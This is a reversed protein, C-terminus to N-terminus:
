LNFLTRMDNIFQVRRQEATLGVGGFTSTMLQRKKEQLDMMREEVSDKAVMKVITVPRTQGLRHCRDFCQEESAPNWAPDLLFVRSAATLNIGEGGARLSLLLVSPAGATTQSLQAIARRREPLSMTGDLRCFVLGAARLPAELRDLLKTFQSVVLAKTSADEARMARLGEMLSNIKASMVDDAPMDEEEGKKEAQDAKQEEEPVEVLQGARLPGRCLPCQPDPAAAPRPGAAADLLRGVCPRCFVHSCVTIVPQRLPEFCVPCEEDSGSRLMETLAAVLRQREEPGIEEASPGAGGEEDEEPLPQDHAPVLLPHCCLQRLRLLMVLIQVQRRVITGDRIFRAVGRRCQEEMTDYRRRQEGELTVHQVYVNRAPLSVIPRGDVKQEKLRRLAISAMLTQLREVADPSGRMVPQELMMRWLPRQSAYPELRLFRVLSWLDKLRNQVPTGTLVWRREARLEFAARAMLSRPNRITHGEDLVVRLYHKCLLPSDDGHDLARGLTAYTTLVIDADELDAATRKPGHYSRVRLHVHKHVHQELQTEWNDLVSLPCVILTTRPGRWGSRGESDCYSPPVPIFDGSGLSTTSTTGSGSTAKMLVANAGGSQGRPDDDDPLFDEDSDVTVFTTSPGAASTSAKSPKETAEAKVRKLDVKEEEEDSSDIYRVPKRKIRSKRDTVAEESQSFMDSGPEAKVNSSEECAQRLRQRFSSWDIKPSPRGGLSVAKPKPPPPLALAAPAARRKWPVPVALPRGAKFHTLILSIVQLTKGLGMDDALIGGCVADPGEAVAGSSERKMMWGLAQKQHPYLRSAVAACPEVEKLSRQVAAWRESVAQQPDRPTVLTRDPDPARGPKVPCFLDDPVPPSPPSPASPEELEFGMSRLQDCVHRRDAERGRVTVELAATSNDHDVCAADLRVLGAELLPALAGAAPRSLHACTLGRETVLRIDRRSGSTAPAGSLLLRVPRGGVTLLGPYYQLGVAACFLVGFTVDGGGGATSPLDAGDARGRSPGAVPSAPRCSAQRSQGSPPSAKLGAKAVMENKVAVKKEFESKVGTKQDTETKVGDKAATQAAGQVYGAQLGSPGPVPEERSPTGPLSRRLGETGATIGAVLSKVKDLLAPDPGPARAAAAAAGRGGRAGRGRGRGRGRGSASPTQSRAGRGRRGGRGRGPQSAARTAMAAAAAAAITTPTASRTTPGPQGCQTQGAAPQPVPPVPADPRSIDAPTATPRPPRACASAPAAAATTATTATRPGRPRRRRPRTPLLLPRGMWSEPIIIPSTSRPAQDGMAPLMITTGNWTDPIVIPCVSSGEEGSSDDDVLIPSSAGTAGAAGSLSNTRGSPGAAWGSM